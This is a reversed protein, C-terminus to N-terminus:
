RNLQRLSNRHLWLIEEPSLARDWVALESVSGRFANRSGQLAGISLPAGNRHLQPVSNDDFLHGDLTMTVEVGDVFLRLLGDGGAAYTFAVHRWTDSIVDFEPWATTLYRKIHPRNHTGDASITIQIERERGRQVLAWSRQDGSPIYRSAIYRTNTPEEGDGRIWLSVTLDAYSDLAAAADLRIAARDDGLHLSRMGTGPFPGDRSPVTRDATGQIGGVHPRVQGDLLWAMTPSPPMSAPADPSAPMRHVPPQGTIVDHFALAMRKGRELMELKPVSTLEPTFAAKANLGDPASAWSRLTRQDHYDPNTSRRFGIGRGRIVRGLPSTAAAEDVFAFDSMPIGHFDLLYDPSGGTDRLISSKTVDISTFRGNTYWVRNHNSEGAATLEPNGNVSRFNPSRHPVELYLKGDPNVVPYVDFIFHRRLEAARPDTSVLFEIMGHLSWCAPDERAHNSGTLVVHQKPGTADPDTIRYGFIPQPPIPAPDPGWWGKSFGVVWDANASPTPMIWPLNRARLSRVHERKMPKSYAVVEQRQARTLTREYTFDTLWSPLESGISERLTTEAASAPVMPLLLAAATLFTTFLRSTRTIM